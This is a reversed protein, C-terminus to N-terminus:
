KTLYINNKETYYDKMSTNASVSKLESVTIDRKIKLKLIFRLLLMPLLNKLVRMCSIVILILMKSQLIFKIELIKMNM